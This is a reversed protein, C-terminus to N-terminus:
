VSCGGDGPDAASKPAIAILTVSEDADSDSCELASEVPEFLIDLTLFLLDESDDPCVASVPLLLRVLPLSSDPSHGGVGLAFVSPHDSSM